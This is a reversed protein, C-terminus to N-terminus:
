WQVMERVKSGCMDWRMSESTTLIWTNLTVNWKIRIQEDLKLLIWFIYIQFIWFNIEFGMTKTETATLKCSYGSDLENKWLIAWIRIVLM